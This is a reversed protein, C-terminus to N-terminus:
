LSHKAAQPLLPPQVPGMNAWTLGPSSPRPAQVPQGPNATHYPVPVHSVRWGPALSDRSHGGDLGVEQQVVTAASGVSGYM